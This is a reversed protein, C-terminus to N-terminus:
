PTSSWSSGPELRGGAFAVLGGGLGGAAGAGPLDRITAGSTASSSEPSTTSTATSPPSWRRRRGRRPATSPRPATPAASRTTSTAPSPSRSATSGRTAARRRRDPRTPRARRRRARARPGRRRAPPLRAGPWARRRRRQHRQRRHGRDGPPARRRHRGPAARRDRADHDALPDRPRAPVLVLGSAAAMEIVATRGDGLMGFARPGARRAPRHGDVERLSGGTAAVLAEVTGEGGDAMPCWTSRPRASGGRRVGRAM